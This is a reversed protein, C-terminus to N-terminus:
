TCVVGLCGNPDGASDNGGGDTVAGSAVEIGFDANNRTTNDRVVVRPDSLGFIHLGDNVPRGAGDRLGGSDHGNGDFTNGAFQNGPMSTLPEQRIEYVLGAARNNRFINNFIKTGANGALNIDVGIRNGAFTNGEVWVDPAWGLNLGTQANQFTSGTITAGVSNNDIAVTSGSLTGNELVFGNSENLSLTSDTMTMGRASAGNGRISVTVGTFTGGIIAFGTSNSFLRIEGGNVTVGTLSVDDAPSGKIASETARIEGGRIDLGETRGSGASNTNIAVPNNLFRINEVRDDVAVTDLGVAFGRITGNRITVNAQGTMTIAAGSGDGSITHGDLDVTIDGAGITLGNGACALDARLVVSTRVTEGCRLPPSAPLVTLAVSQEDHRTGASISLSVRYEAPATFTHTFTATAATAETADTAAEAVRWQWTDPAAGTVDAAFTVQQGVEPSSPTVRLRTIGPPTQPASATGSGPGPGSTRVAPASGTAAVTNSRRASPTPTPSATPSATPASTPSPNPLRTPDYKNIRRIEGTTSITGARESDPDNFFVQGDRTLLEFRIPRPSLPETTRATGAAVDVIHVTGATRDPLLVHTGTQVASPLDLGDPLRVTTSCSGTAFDCAIVAPPSPSLVIVRAADPSGLVVDGASGPLPLTREDDANGVSVLTATRRLPNLVVPHGGAMILRGGGGARTDDTPQRHRLPGGGIRRSVRGTSRDLIWVGDRDAALVTDDGPLPTARGLPQLTGPDFSRLIRRQKDVVHLADRTAYAESLGAGDLVSTSSRALTAGDVGVVWGRGLDVGYGHHGQQATTFGGGPGTIAVSTAVTTSAGDLLTLEGVARSTLWASGALMTPKVAPATYRLGLVTMAAVVALGTFGAAAARVRRRRGSM